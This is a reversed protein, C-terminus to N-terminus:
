QSVPRVRQGASRDGDLCAAGFADQMPVEGVEIREEGFQYKVPDAPQVGL